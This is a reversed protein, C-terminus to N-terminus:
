VRPYNDVFNKYCIANVFSVSYHKLLIEILQQYCRFNHLNQVTEDIGDFDSGFGIHNAGGLSCVHDIHNLIDKISASNNNTLFPPVFTIGIMGKKKILAKIQSDTLNRPHKTIAKANSHSAIPFDALEITEWFGKESLHSVDTWITNKNNELVVEKGFKTLGAGRKELVGDAVLNAYNWTLGVSTVGLKYLTRLKEIESGIADCGELTLIAGIEGNKLQGIQSKATVLKINGQPNAVKEYFIDIMEIAVDFKRSMPISEPIYIAFCQIKSGADELYTQNVHLDPSNTFSQQRNEWLKLLADCHADFIKM